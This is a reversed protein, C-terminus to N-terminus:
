TAKEARVMHGAEEIEVFWLNRALKFRGAVDGSTTKWSVDEWPAGRFLAKGTWAMSRLAELLGDVNCIIDTAGAYVLM